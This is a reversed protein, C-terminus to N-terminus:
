KCAEPRDICFQVKEAGDEMIVKQYKTMLLLMKQLVSLETEAYQIKEEQSGHTFMKENEKLYAIESQVLNLIGDRYRILLPRRIKYVSDWVPLYGKAKYLDKGYFSKVQQNFTKELADLKEWESRFFDSMRSNAPVITLTADQVNYGAMSNLKASRKNVKDALLRYARTFIKEVTDYQQKRQAYGNHADIISVPPQVFVKNMEALVQQSALNSQAQAAVTFIMVPIIFLCKM